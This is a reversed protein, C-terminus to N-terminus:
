PVLLLGNRLELVPTSLGRLVDQQETIIREKADIFSDGIALMMLDIYISVGRIAQALRQPEASLEDTLLPVLKSRLARGTAFWASFSLGAEAYRSGTDMMRSLYDQWDGGRIAQAIRERNDAVDEGNGAGVFSGLEPHDAADEAIEAGISAFRPEYVDWFERLSRQEADTLKPALSGRGNVSMWVM